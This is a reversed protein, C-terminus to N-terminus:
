KSLDLQVPACVFIGQELNEENKAVAYEVVSPAKVRIYVNADPDTQALVCHKKRANRIDTANTTVEPLDSYYLEFDEESADIFLCWKGYPIDRSIDTIFKGRKSHGLYYRFKIEQDGAVEAIVKIASGKRGEILGYAVGTKGSPNMINGIDVEIGQEKQIAIAEDTGLPPYLVFFEKGDKHYHDHIQESLAKIHEEFLLKVIPSKSSNGALFIHVKDCDDHQANLFTLKLSEFFNIIGKEIRNKLIQILDIGTLQLQMGPHLDGNKDFLDVAVVADQVIKSESVFTVQEFAQTYVEAMNEPCKEKDKVALTEWLTRLAEMLQKLNRKAEQSNSILAESGPFPKCFVPMSFSFGVSQADKQLLVDKNAKFIEYAMLELLNEGGLYRDGQSGFQNIVYDYRREERSNTAGRMVGFDFDTTGGGFDFIGYYIKEDEEPAFGYEKLACIAYAAPESVGQAVRFKEMLQQNQVISDPLSKKLGNAFSQIIKERVAKAYTVPFSMLYNLFIGNRMNNIYLGLYYAYLEVPDLEGDKISLYPPIIIERGNQDIFKTQKQKSSEGCWQKINYFFSYFDDSDSSQTMDNSAKHSVTLDQISTLPRGAQQRYASMFQDINLFEIVTPNEYQKPEVKKSIQGIGIRLLRTNDDGNQFAVITSKTGFDIGVIGDYNIDAEPNRAVVRHPLPVVRVSKESASEPTWIEWLGRNIDDLCKSDYAEIDARITDAQLKDALFREFYDEPMNKINQDSLNEFRDVINLLGAYRMIEDFSLRNLLFCGIVFKLAYFDYSEMQTHSSLISFVTEFDETSLEKKVYIKEIIEGLGDIKEADPNKVFIDEGSLIEEIMDSVKYPISPIKLSDTNSLSVGYLGGSGIDVCGGVCWVYSKTVPGRTLKGKVLPNRKANIYFLDKAQNYTMMQTKISLYSDPYSSVSYRISRSDGFLLEYKSVFYGINTKVFLQADFFEKLKEALLKRFAQVCVYDRWCEYEAESLVYQDILKTDM